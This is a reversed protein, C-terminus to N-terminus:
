RKELWMSAKIKAQIPIQFLVSKNINARGGTLVIEHKM